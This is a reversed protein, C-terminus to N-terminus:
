AIARCSIELAGSGSAVALAHKVNQSRAFAREFQEVRSGGSADDRRARAERLRVDVLQRQPVVELVAREEEAGVEPFRPFPKNKPRVPTGGNIALRAWRLKSWRIYLWPIKLFRKCL